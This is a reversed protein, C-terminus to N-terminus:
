ENNKDIINIVRCLQQKFEDQNKYTLYISDPKENISSM